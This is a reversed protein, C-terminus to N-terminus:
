KSSSRCTQVMKRQGTSWGIFAAQIAKLIWYEKQGERLEIPPAFLSYFTIVNDTDSFRFIKWERLNELTSIRHFNSIYNYNYGKAIIHARINKSKLAIAFEAIIKKMEIKAKRKQAYKQTYEIIKQIKQIFAKRKQTYKQTYERIKRMMKRMMKRMKGEKRKVLAGGIGEENYEYKKEM